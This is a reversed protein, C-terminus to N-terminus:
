IDVFWKFRVESDSKLWTQCKPLASALIALVDAEAALITLIHSSHGINM